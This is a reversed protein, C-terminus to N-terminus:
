EDRTFAAQLKSIKSDKLRVLQELKTIKLELIEITQKYEDIQQDKERLVASDNENSVQRGLQKRPPASHSSSESQRRNEGLVHPSPRREEPRSRVSIPSSARRGMSPSASRHSRASSLTRDPSRNAERARYKAMKVQVKNLVHEIANPTCQVVAELEQKSLNYGIKRLM